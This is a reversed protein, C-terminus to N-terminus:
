YEPYDYDYARLFSAIKRENETKNEKEILTRAAKSDCGGNTNSHLWNIVKLHGNQAAKTMAANTCGERRNRHLWIIVDLHGNAAAYDMGNFTCDYCHNHMWQVKKLWGKGCAHDMVDETYGKVRYKHLWKIIKMNNSYWRKRLYTHKLIISKTYENGISISTSVPCYLLIKDIVDQPLSTQTEISTKTETQEFENSMCVTLISFFRTL